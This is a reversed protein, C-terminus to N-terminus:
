HFGLFGNCLRNTDKQIDAFVNAINMNRAKLAVPKRQGFECSGVDYTTEAVLNRFRLKAKLFPKQQHIAIHFDSYPRRNCPISFVTATKRRFLPRRFQCM